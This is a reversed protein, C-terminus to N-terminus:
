SAPRLLPWVSLWYYVLYGGAVLLLVGSVRVAHRAFRRLAGPARGALWGVLVTMTVLVAAVGAGFLFFQILAALFGGALL